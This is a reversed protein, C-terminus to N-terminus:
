ADVLLTRVTEKAVNMLDEESEGARARLAFGSLAAVFVKAQLEPNAFPKLEGAEIGRRILDAIVTDTAKVHEKLKNKFKTSIGTADALVTIVLCGPHKKNCANKVLGTAFKELRNQYNEDSNLASMNIAQQKHCYFEVAKLFLSEKDGFALYISPRSMKMADVLSSYSTGVYGDAWFVKMAAELATNEDFERPRGTM